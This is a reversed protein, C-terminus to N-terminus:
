SCDHSPARLLRELFPLFLLLPFLLLLHLKGFAELLLVLTRIAGAPIKEFGIRWFQFSGRRLFGCFQLIQSVIKGGSVDACKLTGALKQVKSREDLFLAQQVPARGTPCIM